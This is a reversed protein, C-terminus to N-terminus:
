WVGNTMGLSFNIALDLYTSWNELLLLYVDNGTKIAGATHSDAM